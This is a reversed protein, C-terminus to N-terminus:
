GHFCLGSGSFHIIYVCACYYFKLIVLPTALRKQLALLWVQFPPDLHLITRESTNEHTFQICLCCMSKLCFKSLIAWFRNKWIGVESQSVSSAKFGTSYGETSVMKHIMNVIGTVLAVVSSNSLTSRRNFVYTRDVIFLSLYWFQIKKKVLHLITGESTNEHTFQICLLCCM